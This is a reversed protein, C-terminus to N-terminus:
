VPSWNWILCLCRPTTIYPWRMLRPSWTKSRRHVVRDTNVSEVPNSLPARVQRGNLNKRALGDLDEANYKAAGNATAAKKLFSAWVQKRTALSLPEYRVALTIRSQIADDFDRVRNTTLFMIGQNYELKRLFVSVRANQHSDISRAQVFVDAEDLLVLAKWHYALQSIHSLQDELKKPEHGLEGASVQITLIGLLM